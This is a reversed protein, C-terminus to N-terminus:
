WFCTVTPFVFRVVVVCCCVACAAHVVVLVPRCACRVACKTAALIGGCGTYIEAGQTPHPKSVASHNPVYRTLLERLSFSAVVGARFFHVLFSCVVLLADTEGFLCSLCSRKKDDSSLRGRSADGTLTTKPLQSLDPTPTATRVVVMAVEAAAAAAAAAAARPVTRQKQQQQPNREDCAWFVVPQQVYM